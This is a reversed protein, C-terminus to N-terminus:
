RGQGGDPDPPLVTTVRTSLREAAPVVIEEAQEVQVIIGYEATLDAFYSGTAGDTVEQALAEPDGIARVVYPRTLGRFDVIIAEGAFRIAATSTLRQDNISIAEAGSAWLGNVLLQLDRALVRDADSDEAAPDLEDDPADDLTVLVGPGTLATAGIRTAVQRLEESRDVTGGELAGQGLDAIEARLDEVRVASADGAVNAAEIREVLEAREAADQPDPTRLTQASVTLVLGLVVTTVVLLPSRWGTSPPLGRGAREASATEYGPDLPRDLVERLLAMSAAPDPDRVVHGARRSWRM